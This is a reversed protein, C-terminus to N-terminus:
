EAEASLQKVHAWQIRRAIRSVQTYDVGHRRGISRLSEGGAHATRMERVAKETLKRRPHTEGLLMTGHSHRDMANSTPTGWRLNSRRDDTCDGNKHCCQKGKPCPGVFALLVLRYVLKTNGRGMSVERRGSGKKPRPKLKRWTNGLVHSNKGVSVREWCSWINGDSSARYGPFGPIDKFVINKISQDASM